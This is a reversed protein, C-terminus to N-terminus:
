SIINPLFCGHCIYKDISLCVVHYHYLAINIYCKSQLFPNIPQFIHENPHFDYAPIFLSCYEWKLMHVGSSGM